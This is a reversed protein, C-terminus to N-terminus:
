AASASGQFRSWADEFRRRLQSIRGQSLVFRFALDVTREGSVMASIIKRNRRSMARLCHAYDIRFAALDPIAMKRDEIAVQRWGDTQGLMKRSLIAGRPGLGVVRVGHRRQAVPSLVDQAADQHGGVHRGNRVHKVAYEAIMGPRAIHLKGRAALLRYSQCASAIAEQIAEERREPRLRRFQIKAHTQVVPLVSM